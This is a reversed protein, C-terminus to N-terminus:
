IGGEGSFDTHEKDTGCRASLEKDKVYFTQKPGTDRILLTPDRFRFLLLITDYLDGVCGGIHLGLLFAALFKDITLPLVFILVTFVPIFTLFPALLAILAARRYVYIDPVGCYAVTLTMGFTLKRGTLCKYAAGHILEHLIIYLIMALLFVGWRILMATPGNEVLEGLDPLGIVLATIALSLVIPILALLNMIIGFKANKADIVKVERYGEPLILEFNKKM